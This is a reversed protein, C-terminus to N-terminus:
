SLFIKSETVCVHRQYYCSCRLNYIPANIVPLHISLSNSTGQIENWVESLFGSCNYKSVVFYIMQIIWPLLMNNLQVCFGDFVADPSFLFRSIVDCGQLIKM